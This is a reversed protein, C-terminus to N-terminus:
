LKKGNMKKRNMTNLRQANMLGPASCFSYIPLDRRLAHRGSIFLGQFSSTMTLALYIEFLAKGDTELGDVGEFHRRRGENGEIVDVLRLVLPVVVQLGLAFPFFFAM